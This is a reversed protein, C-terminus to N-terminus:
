GEGVELVKNGHYIRVRLSNGNTFMRSFLRKVAGTFTDNFVVGAQMQFDTDMGWVLQYGARNAWVELQKKLGGPVIAWKRIDKHLNERSEKGQAQFFPETQAVVGKPVFGKGETLTYVQSFSFGDSTRVYLYYGYPTASLADFIYAVQLPEGDPASRREAAQPAFQFGQTRLASEFAVGFPDNQDYDLALTTHGPPYQAAMKLAARETLDHLDPEEFVMDLSSVSQWKSQGSAKPVCGGAAFALVLLCLFYSRMHRM